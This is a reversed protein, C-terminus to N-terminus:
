DLPLVQVIKNTEPYVLRYFTGAGRNTSYMDVETQKTVDVKLIGEAFAKQNRLDLSDCSIEVGVLLPIKSNEVIGELRVFKDIYKGLETDDTLTPTASENNNDATEKATGCSYVGILALGFLFIFLLPKM